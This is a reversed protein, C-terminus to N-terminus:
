EQLLRLPRCTRGKYTSGETHSWNIFYNTKPHSLPLSRHRRKSQHQFGPLQFATPHVAQLPPPPASNDGSDFFEYGTIAIRVSVAWITSPTPPYVHGANAIPCWLNDDDDDKWLLQVDSYSQHECSKKTRRPNDCIWINPAHAWRYSDTRVPKLATRRRNAAKERRGHNENSPVCCTETVAKQSWAVFLFSSPTEPSTHPEWVFAHQSM